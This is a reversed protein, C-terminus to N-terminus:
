PIDRKIELLVRHWSTEKIQFLMAGMGSKKHGSLISYSIDKRM